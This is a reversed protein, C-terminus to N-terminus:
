SPFGLFTFAEGGFSEALKQQRQGPSKLSLAGVADAILAM